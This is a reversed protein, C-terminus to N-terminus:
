LRQMSRDQCHFSYGTGNALPAGGATTRYRPRGPWSENLRRRAANVIVTGGRHDIAAVSGMNQGYWTCQDFSVEGNVMTYLGRESIDPRAMAQGFDCQSWAVTGGTQRVLAGHAPGAEATGTPKYGEFVAGSFHLTSPGEALLGRWGNNTTVYIRGGVVGHAWSLKIFYRNLNGRQAPLTSVGINCMAMDLNFDSGGIHMPPGWCNNWTCDGRWTVQTVLCKSKDHGYMGYMFNCSIGDFTSAYLTGSPVDVFVHRGSSPSGQMSFDAMTVDFISTGNGVWWPTPAFSSNAATFVIESGVLNGGSIEPNKQGTKHPGILKLGNYLTRRNTVPNVSFTRYPLIMPPMNETAASRRQEAIAATLREDDNAGPFTHIWIGTERINFTTSPLAQPAASGTDNEPTKPVTEAPLTEEPLTEM